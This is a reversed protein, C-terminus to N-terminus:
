PSCSSCFLSVIGDESVNVIWSDLSSKDSKDFIKQCINCSTPLSDAASTLKQVSKKMEKKLRKREELQKKRKIKRSSSM